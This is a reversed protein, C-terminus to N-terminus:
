SNNQVRGLKKEKWNEHQDQKRTKADKEWKESKEKVTVLYSSSVKTKM